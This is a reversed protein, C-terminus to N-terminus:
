TLNWNEGSVKSMRDVDEQHHHEKGEAKLLIIDNNEKEIM